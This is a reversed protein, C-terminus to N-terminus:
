EKIEKYLHCSTYHEPEIEVYKPNIESCITIKESCRPNFVCGAPLNILSPVIGPITTLEELTSDIRPLSGLIARTYPHKPNKFINHTNSYEIIKGAYMVAVYDCFEAVVAINHTILMIASNFEKKLNGILDLIQAQITVDLSTTPEDAILFKPNCSLAMAIMVRQRMGGSFQHPYESLRRLADSIGVKELIAVVKEELEHKNKIKQHLKITEGIQSGITFVPNLSSMPDQFIMAIDGGRIERIKKEDMKLIDQHNFIIEGNTIKGPPRILRMISKGLTSKGCGSEGVIGITQGASIDLSVDYVAKVIGDDTFYSTSLNKIRMLDNSM